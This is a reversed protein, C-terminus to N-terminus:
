CRRWPLRCKIPSMWRCDGEGGKALKAARQITKQLKGLEDALGLRLVERGSWVRGQAIEHVDEKKMGRAKTIKVM